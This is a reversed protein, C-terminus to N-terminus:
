AKGLIISEIESLVEPLAIERSPKVQTGIHKHYPFTPVDRHHAANDYRFILNGKGDSLNFRYKPREKGIHVYEMFTLVYGGLFLVIADIYSQRNM